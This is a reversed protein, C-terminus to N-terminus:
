IKGFIFGRWILGFRILPNLQVVDHLPDDGPASLKRLYAATPALPLFAPRFQRPLGAIGRRAAQLADVAEARLDRLAARLDPNDTGSLIASPHLSHTSLLTQPLFVRGNAADYPLTRMIVTLGYARTAAGTFGPANDLGLIKGGLEFMAGVTADLYEGLAEADPMLEAHLDFGHADIMARLAIEPLDHRQVAEAVANLVPHDARGSALAPGLADRWWQLRIEGLQPESVQDAIRGLELSFAHLALLDQQAPEPALLASWFRDEDATKVLNRIHDLASKQAEGGAEFSPGTKAAESAM